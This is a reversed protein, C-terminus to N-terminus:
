SEGLLKYLREVATEAHDLAMKLGAIEENKIAIAKHLVVCEANLDGVLIGESLAAQRASFLSDELAKIYSEVANRLMPNVGYSQLMNSLTDTM